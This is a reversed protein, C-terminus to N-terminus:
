FSPAVDFNVVCRPDNFSPGDSGVMGIRFTRIALGHAWSVVPRWSCRMPPQACPAINSRVPILEAVMRARSLRTGHRFANGRKSWALRREAETRGQFLSISGGISENQIRCGILTGLLIVADPQVCLSPHASSCLMRQFRAVPEVVLAFPVENGFTGARERTPRSSQRQRRDCCESAPIM